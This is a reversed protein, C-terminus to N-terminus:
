SHLRLQLSSQRNSVDQGHCSAAMSSTVLWLSCHINCGPIKDHILLVRGACVQGMVLQLASEHDNGVYTAPAM